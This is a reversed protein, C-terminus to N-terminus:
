KNKWRGYLKLYVSPLYDYLMVKLPYGSPFYKRVAQKRGLERVINHCTEQEKLYKDQESKDLVAIKGVVLMTSVVLISELKHKLNPYGEVLKDMAQQWCTIQDMYSPTFKRKMAGSENIYYQYGAYETVVIKEAQLVADILFLADEGITIKAPFRIGELLATKYLVGWCHTYGELLCQELYQPLAYEKVEYIVSADKEKSDGEGSTGTEKCEGDVMEPENRDADYVKEYQCVVMDAGTKKQVKILQELYDEKVWDDADLFTLYKGCAKELALNRAVSVGRNQYQRLVTIREDKKAYEQCIRFSNDQSGNDVLILEWAPYTQKLISEICKKLYKEANYVPVIISIM